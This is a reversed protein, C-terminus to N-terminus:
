VRGQANLTIATKHWHWKPDKHETISPKRPWEDRDVCATIHCITLVKLRLCLAEDLCRGNDASLRFSVVCSCQLICHIAPVLQNLVSLEWRVCLELLKSTVVGTVGEAAEGPLHIYVLVSLFPPFPIALRDFSRAQQKKKNRRTMASEGALLAFYCM